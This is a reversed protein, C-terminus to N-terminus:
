WPRLVVRRRVSTRRRGVRTRSVSRSGQGTWRGGWGDHNENGSGCCQEERLEMYQVKWLDMEKLSRSLRIECEGQDENGNYYNADDKYRGGVGGRYSLAANDHNNADDDNDTVPADNGPGAGGRMRQWRQWWQRADMRRKRNSIMWGSIQSITVNIKPQVMMPSAAASLQAAKSITAAM